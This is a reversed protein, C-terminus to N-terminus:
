LQDLLSKTCYLSFERVLVISSDKRKTMLSTKNVIFKHCMRTKTLTVFNRALYFEEGYNRYPFYVINIKFLLICLGVIFNM